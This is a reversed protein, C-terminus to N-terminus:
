GDDVSGPANSLVSRFIAYFTEPADVGTAVEVEYGDETAVIQGDDDGGVLVTITMTEASAVPEGSVVSAALEDWMFYFDSTASPFLDLLGTLYVIADSQAADSLARYHDDPVPVDNTADLPVLTIRVGSEIVAAAVPVDIWFNWESNSRKCTGRCM